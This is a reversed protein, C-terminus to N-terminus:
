IRGLTKNASNGELPLARVCPPFFLPFFFDQSWTTGTAATARVALDYTLIRGTHIYTGHQVSGGRGFHALQQNGGAGRGCHVVTQGDKGALQQKNVRPGVIFQRWTRPKVRGRALSSPGAGAAITSSPNGTSHFVVVAINRFPHQFHCRARSSPTNPEQTGM